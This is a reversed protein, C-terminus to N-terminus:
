ETNKGKAAEAIVRRDLEVIAAHSRTSWERAKTIAKQPLDVIMAAELITVLAKASTLAEAALMGNTREIM